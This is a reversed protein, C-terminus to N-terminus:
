SRSFGQDDDAVLVCETTAPAPALGGKLEHPRFLAVTALTFPGTLLLLILGRLVTHSDGSDDIRKGRQLAARRGGRGSDGIDSCDTVKKATATAAIACGSRLRLFILVAVLVAFKHLVLAGSLRGGFHGRRKPGVAQRPCVRADDHGGGGRRWGGSTAALLGGADLGVM